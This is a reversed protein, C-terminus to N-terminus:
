PRTFRPVPTSMTSWPQAHSSGSGSACLSGIEIIVNFMGIVNLQKHSLPPPPTYCPIPSGRLPSSASLTPQRIVCRFTTRTRLGRSPAQSPALSASAARRPATSMALWAASPTSGPKLCSAHLTRHCRSLRAPTARSPRLRCPTYDDRRCGRRGPRFGPYLGVRTARLTRSM